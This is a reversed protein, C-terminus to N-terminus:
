VFHSDAPSSQEELYFPKVTVNIDRTTESYM